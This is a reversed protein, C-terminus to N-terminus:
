DQFNQHSFIISFSSSMRHLYARIAPCLVHLPSSRNVSHMCIVQFYAAGRFSVMALSLDFICYMAVYRPSFFLPFCLFQVLSVFFSGLFFSGALRLFMTWICSCFWLLPFVEEANMFLMFQLCQLWSTSSVCSCRSCSLSDPISLPFHVRSIRSFIKWSTLLLIVCWFCPFLFCPFPSCSTCTGDSDLRYRQASSQVWRPFMSFGKISSTLAQGM